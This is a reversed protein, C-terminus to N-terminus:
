ILLLLYVALVLFRFKVFLASVQYELSKYVAVIGTEILQASWTNATWLDVAMLEIVRQFPENIHLSIPNIAELLM